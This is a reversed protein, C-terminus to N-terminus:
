EEGRERGAARGVQLVGRRHVRELIGCLEATLAAAERGSFRRQRLLDALSRGAVYAFVVFPRGEHTDVDHVRVVGPDDLQALVRGEDILRRQMEAPLDRRAWKLAVDHGLAPVGSARCAATPLDSRSEVRLTIKEVPVTTGAVIERRTRLEAPARFPRMMFDISASMAAM